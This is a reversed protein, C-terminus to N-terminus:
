PYTKTGSGSSEYRFYNNNWFCGGIVPKYYGVEQKFFTRYIVDMNISNEIFARSDNIYIKDTSERKNNLLQHRAAYTNKAYLYIKDIDPEHNILNLM